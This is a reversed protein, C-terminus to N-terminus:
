PSVRTLTISGTRPLTQSPTRDPSFTSPAPVVAQAPAIPTPLPQPVFSQVTLSNEAPPLSSELAAGPMAFATASALGVLLVISVVGLAWLCARRGRHLVGPKIM